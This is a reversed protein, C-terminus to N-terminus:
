IKDSKMVLMKEIQMDRMTHPIGGVGYGSHRLGAFPMGDVRFATHDNVMVASADLRRYAHMATDIDQTFVAAQFSCPLSNARAIADDIHSYPYVCVVPGFVENQSIIADDSPNYLVTCEFCFDSLANGGTLVKAGKKCADDVWEKVRVVESPQILPGVETKSSTPDGIKLQKVSSVLQDCFSKAITEEVFIRQVSVCVQGAHYFGGKTLLPVANDLNADKAVIVPAVGGHELSSRVGPALKRQLMWGVKASGIFTFFSVRSDTVLKEALANDKIALVQCWAKPLGATHLLRVFHFCSIPTTSAPKVIVPCGSAIAAAVQHVILNFPHNFASVAVVVGIPEKSTFAFRHDSAANYRMPVVSGQDTRLTEICLKIGDIGRNVEVVSDMLPKGGERAAEFALFDKEVTALEVLKELIEIRQPVSIWNSRNRYCDHAVRLASEIMKDDACTVTAITKGNFPAQVEMTVSSTLAESLLCDYHKM